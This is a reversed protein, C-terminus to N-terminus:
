VSWNRPLTSFGNPGGRRGDTSLRSAAVHGLARLAQRFFDVSRQVQPDSGSYTSLWGVRPVTGAPQAEVSLPALLSLAFVLTFGIRRM